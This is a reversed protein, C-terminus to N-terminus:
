RKLGAHIHQLRNVLEMAIDSKNSLTNQLRSVEKKLEDSYWREEKLSTQLEALEQKIDGYDGGNRLENKQDQPTHHRAYHSQLETETGLRMKCAPCVLRPSGSGAASSPLADGSHNVEYHDKLADASPFAHFCSPCLFGQM